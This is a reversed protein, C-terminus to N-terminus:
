NNKIFILMTPNTEYDRTVQMTQISGWLDICLTLIREIILRTENNQISSQVLRLQESSGPCAAIKANQNQTQQKECHIDPLNHVTVAPSHCAVFCAKLVEEATYTM